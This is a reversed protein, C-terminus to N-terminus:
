RQARRDRQRLAAADALRRFRDALRRPARARRHAAHAATAPGDDASWPGPLVKRYAFTLRDTSAPGATVVGARACLSVRHRARWAGTVGSRVGRHSLGPAHFQKGLVLYGPSEARHRGPRALAAADDGRDRATVEAIGHEEGPGHGVQGLLGVVM